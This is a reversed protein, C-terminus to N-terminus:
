YRKLNDFVSAPNQAYTGNPSPTTPSRTRKPLQVDVLEAQLKRGSQYSGKTTLVGSMDEQVLPTTNNSSCKSQDGYILSSPTPRNLLDFAYLSKIILVLDFLESRFSQFEM